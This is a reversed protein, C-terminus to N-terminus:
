EQEEIAILSVEFIEPVDTLESKIKPPISDDCEVLLLNREPNLHNSALSLSSININEKGLLTAVYGVMGPKNQHEVLLLPKKVKTESEYNNIRKILIEGGGVSCGEVYISKEKDKSLYIGATNPHEKPAASIEFEFQLGEKEAIEIAYRIREDSPGMGLIGGLIARDTGHGYFTRAFSRYLSIKAMDPKDGLFARAFKGIRVAGATHSSSPGIMIPGIIDFVSRYTM